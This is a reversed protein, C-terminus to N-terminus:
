YQEMGQAALSVCLDSPKEEEDGQLVAVNLVIYSQSVCM